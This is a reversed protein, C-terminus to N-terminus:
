RMMGRSLCVLLSVLRHKSGVGCVLASLWMGAVSAGIDQEAVPGLTANPGGVTFM